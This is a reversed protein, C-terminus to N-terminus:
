IPLDAQRHRVVADTDGGLVLLPDEVDELTQVAALGVGAGADTKSDDAFAHLLHPAPGADIGGQALARPEPDLEGTFLRPILAWSDVTRSTSSLGSSARSVRLANSFAPM